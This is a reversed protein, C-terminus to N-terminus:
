STMLKAFALSLVSPYVFRFWCDVIAVLMEQRNCCSLMTYIQNKSPVPHFYKYPLLHVGACYNDARSSFTSSDNCKMRYLAGTLAEPGNFIYEDPDYEEAQIKLITDILELGRNMHLMSNTVIEENERGGPVTVFNRFSPGDYPKLTLVDLDLYMGGEKYLSLIRIYDSMHQVRWRSDRWQGKHYLDELPSDRFYLEEDDILIVQVNPYQNLVQFWASSSNFNTNSQPQFFVQIPRRPNHLAASEVACCQRFSLEMRGSTEHFFIRDNNSANTANPRTWNIINPSGTTRLPLHSGSKYSNKIEEEDATSQTYFTLAITLVVFSFSAFLKLRTIKKNRGVWVFFTNSFRGVM